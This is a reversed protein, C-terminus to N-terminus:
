EYRWSGGMVVALRGAVPCRGAPAAVAVEDYTLFPLLLLLQLLLLSFSATSYSPAAAPLPLLLLLHLSQLLM